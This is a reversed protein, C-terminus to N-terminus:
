PAISNSMSRPSSILRSTASQIWTPFAIAFYFDMLSLNPNYTPDKRLLGGPRVEMLIEEARFREIKDPSDETGRSASEHHCLEAFPSWLDVYDAEHVRLCSDINNYDVALQEDM